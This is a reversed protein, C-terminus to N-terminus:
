EAKEEDKTPEVEKQLMNEIHPYHQLYWKLQQPTTNDNNHYDNAGPVFQHNGPKLRLPKKDSKKAM